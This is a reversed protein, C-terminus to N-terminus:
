FRFYIFPNHTQAALQMSSLLFVLMMAAIGAVDSLGNLMIATQQTRSTTVKTWWQNWYTVIPTSGIIGIILALIVTTDLYLAVTYELGFSNAFGSMAALMALSQQLTEARFFVWGVLVALLVYIHRIPKWWSFLWKTFGLREITLFLGHYFGWIVFNWSAGHWLGVLFFVTVLNLYVRLSSRRNGGLPIYLYDRFWTSLSIHWRRWFEQISQSIYPYNFNELFKFGFMHGLGIAMDSYGSFDFYIQLGYCIIGLWALGPTLQNGPIAFIADAPVAVTNAILVKKGLGIIFRRIGLAFGERNITRDIIQTAIDHYRVIPGAILQPFFSIYLATHFPNKQVHAEQRYVDIVYSLAQFTFFSIGIPLHIPQLEIAQIEFISFVWNLNDVLFNAYKFIGLLGINFIVALTLIVKSNRVGHFHDILLGFFYNFVISVLIVLVFKQEGWTYFFLSGGLLLVNRARRGVLFYLALIIPLFLYIFIPSSFVM